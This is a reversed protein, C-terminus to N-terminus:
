ANFVIKGDESEVTVKEQNEFIIKGKIINIHKLGRSKFIELQGSYDLNIRGVEKEIALRKFHPAHSIFRSGKELIGNLAILQGKWHGLGSTYFWTESARILFYSGSAVYTGKPFDHALYKAQFKYGNHNFDGPIYDPTFNSYIAGDDRVKPM